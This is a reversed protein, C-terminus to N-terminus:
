EEGELNFVELKLFGDLIKVGATECDFAHLTVLLQPVQGALEPKL